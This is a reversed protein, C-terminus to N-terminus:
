DQSLYICLFHVWSNRSDCAPALLAVTHLGEPVQSRSGPASIPCVQKSIQVQDHLTCVGSCRCRLFSLVLTVCLAGLDENLSHQLSDQPILPSRKWMPLMSTQPFVVGGELYWAVQLLFISVNSIEEARMQQFKEPTMSLGGAEGCEGTWCLLHHNALFLAM